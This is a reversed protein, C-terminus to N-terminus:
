HTQENIQKQTPLTFYFAAGEGPKGEAWVKGGHRHVIRQILALGVGTGEFEEASHLRQFVGFLKHSYKEDFGVGNDKVYYTTEGDRSEGGVEIVPAPQQRSFKVANDILNAFVQRLMALDGQAPPLPKLDFRPPPTLAAAAASGFVARALGTMDIPTSEIQQRGMRSFALLDDILRGMRKAESSVVDLLRNGEADLRDACDEKLMRVYGDVSRLPARLDHSVSYSFAELEKNAAELEATREVIRQELTDNLQRIKEEARKRETIDRWLTHLLVEGGVTIPTLTVEIPITSGDARAHIWEFRHHGERLGIAIMEAAKEDSSRGDPQYAPSVKSPSYNLFESKSSYGLLKMTAANCGVFCGNKILLNPDNADEFLRRFVEESERLADETKKRETIDTCTGVWEHITGDANLVPVGRTAFTRYVGDHRRMCYEVDYPTKTEVAKSWVELTRATDDPHLASAWGAGQIESDSQGTYAQWTALPGTVQGNADTSWVIQATVTVFSRFRVESERLAADRAQIQGLMQNFADTLLGLEDEGIKKARVSYDQRDYVAKATEALALIPKSIQQQLKRSLLYAVLIVVAIVALAISISVRLWDHMVAGTDFKLYLTGLRRNDGQVVPQFGDLSSHEFRYGDKGPARPFATPPLDAPYKSFLKGEKDYLSAAVIHREAKLAVLIEKADDQNDFALAATSNAAIVEGITSLQRLMAQRFTLFGYTFFSVCMLIMVVLSTLLIITILKRRIPMDKLRM